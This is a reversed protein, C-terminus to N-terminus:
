FRTTGTKIITKSINELSEVTGDMVDSGNSGHIHVDIFGPAVYLGSVDLSETGDMLESASTDIRKFTKDFSLDSQVLGTPLIITGGRLTFAM